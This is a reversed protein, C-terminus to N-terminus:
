AILVRDGASAADMEAKVKTLEGSFREVSEVRLHCTTELSSAAITSLTVSPRRTLKALTAEVTYLGTMEAPGAPRREAM